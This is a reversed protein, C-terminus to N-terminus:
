RRWPTSCSPPSSPSCRTGPSCCSRGPRGPSSRSGGGGGRSRSGPGSWLSPRHPAPLVLLPGLRARGPRKLHSRAARRSRRARRRPPRRPPREARVRPGRRELPPPEPKPEPEPEPGPKAITQLEEIAALHESTRKFCAMAYIEITNLIGLADEVPINYWTNGFMVSVTTAGEEKQARIGGVIGMRTDKDM